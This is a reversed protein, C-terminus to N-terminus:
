ISSVIKANFGNYAIDDRIMECARLTLFNAMTHAFVIKGKAAIGAAVGIMNQEAIGVQIARQPHAKRFNAVMFLAEADVTYIDGNEEGLETLQRDWVEYLGSSAYARM